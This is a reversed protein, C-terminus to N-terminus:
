RTRLARPDMTVELPGGCPIIMTKGPALWSPEGRSGYPVGISVFRSGCPVTLKEEVKGRLKLNVYVDAQTAASHVILYGLGHRKMDESFDDAAPAEASPTPDPSPAATPASEPPPPPATEAPAAPVVRATPQTSAAPGSSFALKAIVGVLGLTLGVWAVLAPVRRWRTPAKLKNVLSQRMLSVRDGSDPMPDNELALPEPAYSTDPPSAGPPPVVLPLRGEPESSVRDAGTKVPPPGEPPPVPPRPPLAPLEIQATSATPPPPAVGALTRHHPIHAKRSPPPKVGSADAQARIVLERLERKGADLRGKRLWQAIDACGITRKEPAPMLAADVALALGRPLDPRINTLSPPNRSAVAKLTAEIAFPDHPLNLSRRGSLLEWLILGVAYVDIKPTPAQDSVQEPAMYAPTWRFSSTTDTGVGGMITAFGFGDLKVAGDRAVLVNSPNVARHVLPARTCSEDDLGHAHALADCISVGIHFIADDSLKHRGHAAQDALIAALPMGNVHEVVLVLADNHEFFHRIRVIGPHTLQACATAERTLEEIDQAGDGSVKPVMKLVVDRAVGGRGEERALHVQVSGTVSLHQIVRYPGIFDTAANGKQM